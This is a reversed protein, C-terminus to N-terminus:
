RFSDLVTKLIELTETKEEDSASCSLFYDIGNIAFNVDYHDTIKTPEAAYDEPNTDVWVIEVVEGGPLTHEFIEFETGEYYYVGGSGRGNGYHETYIFTRLHVEVEYETGDARRGSDATFYAGSYIESIEGATNSALMAFCHMTKDLPRDYIYKKVAGELVPNNMVDVGLFEEMEDWSDFFSRVLGLEKMEETVTGDLRRIEESFNGMPFKQVEESEIKYGDHVTEEGGFAHGKDIEVDMPEVIFESVAFAGGVLALCVCAAILAVRLPRIRRKAPSKQELQELIDNKAPESLSVQEMMNRYEMKM